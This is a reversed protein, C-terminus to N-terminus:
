RTVQQRKAPVVSKPMPDLCKRVTTQPHAPLAEIRELRQLVACSTKRAPKPGNPPQLLDDTSVALRQGPTEDSAPLHAHPLKKQTPM